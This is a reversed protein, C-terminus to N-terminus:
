FDDWRTGNLLKRQPPSREGSSKSRVFAAEAAVSLARRAASSAM